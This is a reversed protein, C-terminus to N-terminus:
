LYYFKRSGKRRRPPAPLRVEGERGYGVIFREFNHFLV